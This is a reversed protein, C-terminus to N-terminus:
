SCFSFHLAPWVGAKGRHRPRTVTRGCTCCWPVQGLEQGVARSPDSHQQQKRSPQATGRVQVKERGKM